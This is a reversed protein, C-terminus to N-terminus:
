RISLTLFVLYVFGVFAFLTVGGLLTLFRPSLKM